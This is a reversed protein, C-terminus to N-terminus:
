VAGEALVLRELEVWSFLLSARPNQAVERAKRSTLNTFVVLGREDCAKLLVTRASPRGDASATALM